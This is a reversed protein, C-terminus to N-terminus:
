YTATHRQDVRKHQAIFRKLNGGVMGEGIFIFLSLVNGLFHHGAAQADIAFEIPTRADNRLRVLNAGPLGELHRVLRLLALAIGGIARRGPRSRVFIFSLM